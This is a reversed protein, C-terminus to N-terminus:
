ETRAFQDCVGNAVITFGGIRCKSVRSQTGSEFGSKQCSFCCAQSRYGQIKRANTLEGFRTSQEISQLTTEM